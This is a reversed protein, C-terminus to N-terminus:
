DDFRVSRSANIDISFKKNSPATFGLGAGRNSFDMRRAHAREFEGLLGQQLHQQADKGLAMNAGGATSGAPQFGKKFGGMLRLFKQQQQSSDFHATSWQGLATPKDPKHPQSAEEIEMQLAKRREQDISAEDTNGTKASLFVVDGQPFDQPDILEEKVKKKKEGRAEAETNSDQDDKVSNKKKKSKKSQSEAALTVNSEWSRADELDEENEKVKKKKKKKPEMDEAEVKGDEEKAKRSKKKKRIKVEISDEETVIEENISKDKKKPLVKEDETMRKKKKIETEELENGYGETKSEKAKKRKLKAENVETEEKEVKMGNELVKAKKKAKTEAVGDTIVTTKKKKEGVIEEPEPLNSVLVKGKAKKPKKPNNNKIQMEEDEIKMNEPKIQVSKDKLKKEKKKLKKNKLTVNEAQIVSYEELKKKRRDDEETEITLSVSDHKKRKTKKKEKKRDTENEVEKAVTEVKKMKKETKMKDQSGNEARCNQIEPSFIKGKKHKKGKKIITEESNEGEMKTEAPGNVSITQSTLRKAQHTPQSQEDIDRQLALLKAQDITIKIPKPASKESVFVVDEDSGTKYVKII